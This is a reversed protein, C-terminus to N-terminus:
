DSSLDLWIKATVEVELPYPASPTYLFPNCLRKFKSEGECRVFVELAFSPPSTARVFINDVNLYGVMSIM